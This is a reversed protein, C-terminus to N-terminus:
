TVELVSARLKRTYEEKPADIIRRVPGEEVLEGRYLVMVRSCLCSVVALDHSVLLAAMHKERCVAALLELVQAQTSVDLASTIEDCLLVGPNVAVARAIAFRQCQGGSLEGPYREALRPDLGVTACLAAIDAEAEPGCLSRVADRISASVRRRPNFSGVANQFIMQIARYQAKTRRQPLPEGSLLLEGGDPKELGSILKLLTSKGSGSEGVIGLIEGDALTFSVGKLADVRIGGRTYTKTINKGELLSM